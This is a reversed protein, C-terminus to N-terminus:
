KLSKYYIWEELSETILVLLFPDFNSLLEALHTAQKKENNENCFFDNPTIELKECIEFFQEMSPLNRGIELGSIYSENKSLLKSLARASLHQRERLQSLRLGFTDKNIDSVLHETRFTYYDKKM